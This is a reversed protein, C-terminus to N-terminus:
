EGNAGNTDEAEAKLDDRLRRLYAVVDGEGTTAMSVRIQEEIEDLRADTTTATIGYEEIEDGNTAADVDWVAVKQNPAWEGDVLTKIEEEAARADDGLVAVLNNGDWRQEWDALIRATPSAIEAMLANVADATLVPITYRREFGEAVVPPRAGDVAADYDATLRGSHLDLAVYVPQQRIEDLLHRCLGTPDDLEVITVTTPNM